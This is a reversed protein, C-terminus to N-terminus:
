SKMIINYYQMIALITHNLICDRLLLIAQSVRDLTCFTTGLDNKKLMEDMKIAFYIVCTMSYLLIIYM